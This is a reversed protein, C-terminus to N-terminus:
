ETSSSVIVQSRLGTVRKLEAGVAIALRELTKYESEQIQVEYEALQDCLTDVALPVESYEIYVLADEVIDADLRGSLQKGLERLEDNIQNHNAM